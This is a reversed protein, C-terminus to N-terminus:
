SKSKGQALESVGPLSRVEVKIRSWFNIIERRRSRKLTPIALLVEQVKHNNILLKLKNPHYVKLGNISHNIIENSDDIFAIPKYEKSQSLATSLQRGASGAGYIVVKKSNVKDVLLWRTFFRSSGIVIIVLAWNILIVSRPVPEIRAMYIFLGWIGAYSSAAQIIRWLARFTVYRIVERYLEFVIFIPIAALPSAFIAILLGENGSPYYFYGLRIWFSIFLISVISIVDFAIMLAQKNKRSLSILINKM